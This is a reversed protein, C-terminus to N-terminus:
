IGEGVVVVVTNAAGTLTNQKGGFCYTGQLSRAM